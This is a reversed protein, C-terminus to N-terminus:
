GIAFRRGTVGQRRTDIAFMGEELEFSSKSSEDAAYTAATNNPIGDYSYSPAM